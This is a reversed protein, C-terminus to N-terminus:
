PALQTAEASRASENPIADRSSVAFFYATGSTLGGIDLTETGVAVTGELTYPGGAAIASYVQYDAIDGTVADWSVIVHGAAGDATIVNVPVDPATVDVPTISISGAANGNGTTPDSGNGSDDVGVVWYYYHTGISASIDDYVLVTIPNINIKTGTAINDTTSRYVDYRVLDDVAPDYADWSLNVVAPTDNNGTVAFGTPAAPGTTDVPIASVVNSPDSNNPTPSGDIATVAYYYTTGLVLAPDEDTYAQTLVATTNVQVFDAPTTTLSRFVNYGVFDAEVNNADWVLDVSAPTDTGATAVLNEPAVPATTDVLVGDVATDMVNGYNDALGNISIVDDMANEGDLVTVDFTVTTVNGVNNFAVVGADVALGVYGGDTITFTPAVTTDLLESATYTVTITVDAGTFNESSGAQSTWAGGPATTDVMEYQVADAVPLVNGALDTLGYIAVLDEVANVGAGLAMDLEIVSVGGVVSYTYTGLYTVVDTIGGDVIAVVPAVTEDLLESATFTLTFPVPNVLDASNDASVGPDAFTGTPNTSDTLQYDAIVTAADVPNGSTDLFGSIGVYDGAGNNGDTITVPVIITTYGDQDEFYPTGLTGIYDPDGWSNVALDNETITAVPVTNWDLYEDADFSVLVVTDTADVDAVDDASVDQGTFAGDPGFVDGVAIDTSVLGEGLNNVATIRFLVERGEFPTQPTDDDRTDFILPFAGNNAASLDVTATVTDTSPQPVSAVRLYDDKAADAERAYIFYGSANVDRDWTFTISTEDYNGAWTADLAFNAVPDVPLPPVVETTFVINDSTTDALLESGVTWTIRYTTNKQMVQDPTITLLKGDESTAYAILVEVPPIPTGEISERTLVISTGPAHLDLAMNFRLELAGAVPFNSYGGDLQMINTWVMDIGGITDFTVTTNMHGGDQADGQINFTYTQNPLLEPDPTFVLHMDDTWTTTGYLPNPGAGNFTVEVTDTDMAKNFRVNIVGDVPFEGDVMNHEVIFPADGIASTYTHSYYFDYGNTAMGDLTVHYATGKEMPIVPTLTLMTGGESWVTNELAFPSGGTTVNIDMDADMPESFTFWLDAGSDFDDMFNTDTVIVTELAITNFNFFKVLDMGNAANGNVTITYYSNFNLDVEPDITLVTNDANWSVDFQGSLFTIEFSAPDMAMNFTMELNGDVLFTNSGSFNTAIVSPGVEDVINISTWSSSYTEGDLSWGALTLRVIDGSILDNVPDVTVTNGSWSVNIPLLSKMADGDVTATFTAPDMPVSFTAVFSGDPAFPVNNDFNQSVLYVGGYASFVMPQALWNGGERMDLDTSMSNFVTDNYMYPLTRLNGNTGTPLGTMAYHGADDTTATWENDAIMLSSLDTTNDSPYLFDAVVVTGVAPVQTSADTQIMVYGETSGILPFMEVNGDVEYPFNADTPVDLIGPLADLTPVYAEGTVTTYAAQVDKAAPFVFTLVYTGPDLNTFAYHGVADTTTTLTTGRVNTTVQVGPLLTGDAGDHVAGHISGIVRGDTNTDANYVNDENCGYAGLIALIAAFLVLKRM